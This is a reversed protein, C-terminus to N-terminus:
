GADLTQATFSRIAPLHSRFSHDAGPLLICRAGQRQPVEMAAPDVFPDADGYLFAMPSPWPHLRPWSYIRTPWAIGLYGALKRDERGALVLGVRSGFSYGWVFLPLGPFSEQLWALAAAADEVEGRGNDHIGESGGVGRFDLRLGVMEAELAGLAGYRVVNNQRTGGHAPHPPLLL